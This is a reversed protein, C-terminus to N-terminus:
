FPIQWQNAVSKGNIQWQNAVSKGSRPQGPAPAARLPRGAFGGAIEWPLSPPQHRGPWRSRTRTGAFCTQSGLYPEKDPLLAVNAGNPPFPAQSRARGLRERTGSVLNKKHPLTAFPTEPLAFLAVHVASRPLSACALSGLEGTAGGGDKEELAGQTGASARIPQVVWALTRGMM